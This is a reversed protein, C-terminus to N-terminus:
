DPVRQHTSAVSFLADVQESKEALEAQLQMNMADKEAIREELHIKETKEGLAQM